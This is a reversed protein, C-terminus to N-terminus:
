GREIVRRIPCSLNVDVIDFGKEAIVKAAAVTDPIAGGLVQGAVPREAPESALMRLAMKDGKALRDPQGMETIVLSAGFQKAILRFPLTTHEEMSALVLRGKWAVPGIQLRGSGQIEM